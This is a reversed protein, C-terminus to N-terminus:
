TVIWEGVAANSIFTYSANPAIDFSISGDILDGGYRLITVIGTSRNKITFIMGTGYGFTSSLPLTVNQNYSGYFVQISTSNYALITNAGSVTTTNTIGLGFGQSTTLNKGIYVGGDIVNSGAGGGYGSSDTTTTCLLSNTSTLGSVQVLSVGDPASIAGPGFQTAGNLNLQVQNSFVAPGGSITPDHNWIGLKLNILRAVFLSGADAGNYFIGGGAGGTWGTFKDAGGYTPMKAFITATDTAYYDNRFQIDSGGQPGILLLDRSDTPSVQQSTTGIRTPRQVIKDHVIDYKQAPSDFFPSIRHGAYYCSEPDVEISITVSTNTGADPLLFYASATEYKGSNPFGMLQGLGNLTIVQGDPYQCTIIFYGDGTVYKGFFDLKIKGTWNTSIPLHQICLLWPTNGQKFVWKNGDKIFPFVGGPIVGQIPGHNKYNYTFPDNIDTIVDPFDPLPMSNSNGFTTILKLDYPYVAENLRNNDASLPPTFGGWGWRNNYIKLDYGPSIYAWNITNSALSNIRNDNFLTGITGDERWYTMPTGNEFFNDWINMHFTNKIYVGYTRFNGLIDNRGILIQSGYTSVGECHIHRANSLIRNGYIQSIDSGYTSIGIGLGVIYNECINFNFAKSCLIGIGYGALESYSPEINNNNYNVDVGSNYTGYFTCKRITFGGLTTAGTGEGGFSISDHSNGFCIGNKSSFYLGEITAQYDFQYGGGSSVLSFCFLNSNSQTIIASGVGYISPIKGTIPLNIAASLKYNGEPFLVNKGLDHADNVTQQISLTDDNLGNGVAGYDKINLFYNSSGSSGGSGAVLSFDLLKGGNGDSKVVLSQGINGIPYPLSYSGGTVNPTNGTLTYGVIIEPSSIAGNFQNNGYNQM